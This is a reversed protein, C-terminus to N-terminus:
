EGSGFAIQWIREGRKVGVSSEIRALIYWISASSTNGYRVINSVVRHEPIGLRERVADVSGAGSDCPAGTLATCILRELGAESTDTTPM